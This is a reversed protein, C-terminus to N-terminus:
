PKEPWVIDEPFGPQEPVERLAQRYLRFAERKEDSIPYDPVMFVDTAALLGDREARAQAAIEEPTPPPPLSEPEVQEPNAEAYAHVDPWQVDETGDLWGGENPVHYPSGNHSVVYSGDARVLLPSLQWDPVPVVQEPNTQAIAHVATWLEQGDNKIHYLMGNHTIVYSGDDRSLISHSQWDPPPPPLAEPAAGATLLSPGLEGIDDPTITQNEM